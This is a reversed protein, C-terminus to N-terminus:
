LWRRWRFFLYTGLASCIMLLMALLYGYRYHLEPMVDFNMGYISAILTPPLFVVAAVSFIKIIKSQAVNTFGIAADLLFNIKEFIFTTHPNLSDIDRLIENVDDGHGHVDLQMPLHRALNRLSRQTDLLSLRVVDNHNEQQLIDRLTDELADPEMAQRGLRELEGYIHEIQDALVEVKMELLAILIEAPTQPRIRQHRLYGRFLRLIGIEEDRLSMLYREGLHFSVNLGKAERKQRFPFLSTLRIGEGDIQFRSSYELEDLEDVTPLEGDYLSQVWAYEEDSPDCVDVWLCNDPLPGPAVEEDVTLGEGTLTFLTIM